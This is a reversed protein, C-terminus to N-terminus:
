VMRWLFVAEPFEESGGRWETDWFGMPVAGPGFSIEKWVEQQVSDPEGGPFGKGESIWGGRVSMRFVVIYLGSGVFRM